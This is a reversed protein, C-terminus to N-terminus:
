EWSLAVWTARMTRGLEMLSSWATMRWARRSRRAMLIEPLRWEMPTLLEAGAHEEYIGAGEAAQEGEVEFAAGDFDFGTDFPGVEETIEGLALGADGGLEADELFLGTGITEGETACEGGVDV